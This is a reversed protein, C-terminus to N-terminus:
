LDTGQTECSWRVLLNRNKSLLKAAQSERVCDKMTEFKGVLPPGTPDAEQKCTPDMPLCLWLTGIVLVASAM